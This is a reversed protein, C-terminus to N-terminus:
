SRVAEAPAFLSMNALVAGMALLVPAEDEGHLGYGALVAEYALAGARPPADGLHLLLELQPSALLPDPQPLQRLLYRGGLLALGTGLCTGALILPLRIVALPPGGGRACAVM